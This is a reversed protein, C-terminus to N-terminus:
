TYGNRVKEWEEGQEDAQTQTIVGLSVLENRKMDEELQDTMFNAMILTGQQTVVRLSSTVFAKPKLHDFFGKRYQCLPGDMEKSALIRAQVKSTSLSASSTALLSSCQWKPQKPSDKLDLSTAFRYVVSM